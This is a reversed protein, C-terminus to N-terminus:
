LDDHSLPMEGGDYQKKALLRRRAVDFIQGMQCRMQIKKVEAEIESAQDTSMQHEHHRFIGLERNLFMPERIKWFRLWMDYDSAYLYRCDFEGAINHIQRSFFVSPCGIANAQLMKDYTTSGGDEGQFRLHSDASITKGYLWFLSYRENEFAENVSYLAGPALVDDSGMIHLIDGAAHQLTANVTKSFTGLHEGKIYRIKELDFLRSLNPFSNLSPQSDDDRIIVEYDSHEQALISYIAQQVMAARGYAPMCISIKM